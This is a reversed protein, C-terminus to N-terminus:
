NQQNRKTKKAEAEAAKAEKKQEEIQQAILVSAEYANALEEGYKRWCGLTMSVTPAEITIKDKEDDFLIQSVADEVLMKQQKPDLKEFVEEYVIFVVVSPKKSVVEGLLNLKSVKIVCKQKPVAYYYFNIFRELTTERVVEDLITRVDESVEAFKM